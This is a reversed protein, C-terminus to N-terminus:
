GKGSKFASVILPRKLPPGIEQSKKLQRKTKESKSKKAPIPKEGEEAPNEKKVNKTESTPLGLLLQFLFKNSYLLIHISLKTM